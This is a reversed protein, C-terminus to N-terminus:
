FPFGSTEHPLISTKRRLLPSLPASIFDGLTKLYKKHFGRIVPNFASFMRACSSNIINTIWLDHVTIHQGEGYIIPRFHGFNFSKGKVAAFTSNPKIFFEYFTGGAFAPIKKQREPTEARKHLLGVSSVRCKRVPHCHAYYITNVVYRRSDDLVNEFKRFFFHFGM